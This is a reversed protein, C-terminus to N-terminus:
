MSIGAIRNSYGEVSYTHTLCFLLMYFQRPSGLVITHKWGFGIDEVFLDQVLKMKTPPSLWNWRCYLYLDSDYKYVYGDDTIGYSDKFSCVLKKFHIGNLLSMDVPVPTLHMRDSESRKEIDQEISRYTETDELGLLYLNGETDSYSMHFQGCSFKDIKHNLPIQKPYKKNDNSDNMYVIDGPLSKNKRNTGEGWYKGTIYLDGEESILQLSIRSLVRVMSSSFGAYIDRYKVGADTDM